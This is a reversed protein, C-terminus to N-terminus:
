NFKVGFLFALFNENSSKPLLPFIFNRLGALIPNATQAIKGVRYSTTVIKTTRDIREKEFLTFVKPIYKEKKLISGLVAADEIAMCAGQGLNPTTAHAADGLLLITDFAFKKIPKLDTLNTWFITEMPTNRIIDGVPKHFESFLDVLEQNTKRGWHMEEKRSDNVAFWYIMKESLPVIGFRKGLGWTESLISYDYGAIPTNCIGRWCTQGSYREYSDPLLQKRINSHIGDAAILYETIAITGDSFHLQIKNKSQTIHTCRKNFYMPITGLEASLIAHLDHRNITVANSKYKKRLEDMGLTQLVKGKQSLIKADSYRYGKAGVMKEIGLYELAKWANLAISLGAGVPAFKESAEYVECDIGANKLAIATTLGGIGGGLITIKM